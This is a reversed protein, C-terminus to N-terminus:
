LDVVRMNLLHLNHRYSHQPLCVLLLLIMLSPIRLLTSTVKMIFLVLSALSFYNLMHPPFTYVLLHTLNTISLESM